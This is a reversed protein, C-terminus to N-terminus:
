YDLTVEGPKTKVGYHCQPTDTSDVAISWKPNSLPSIDIWIQVQAALRVSGPTFRVLVPAAGHIGGATRVMISLAKISMALGAARYNFPLRQARSEHAFSHDGSREIGAQRFSGESVSTTGPWEVPWVGRRGESVGRPGPVSHAEIGSDECLLRSDIPSGAFIDAHNQGGAGRM